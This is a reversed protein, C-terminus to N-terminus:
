IKYTYIKIVNNTNLLFLEALDNISLVKRLKRYDITDILNLKNKTITRHLWGPIIFFSSPNLMTNLTSM